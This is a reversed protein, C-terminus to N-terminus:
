ARHTPDVHRSILQRLDEVSLFDPNTGSNYAFGPEV